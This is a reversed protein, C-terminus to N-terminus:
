SHEDRLAPPPVIRGPSTGAISNLVSRRQATCEAGFRTDGRMGLLFGNSARSVISLATCMKGGAYENVAFTKWIVMILKGRKVCSARSIYQELSSWRGLHFYGYNSVDLTNKNNYVKQAPRHSLIQLNVAM